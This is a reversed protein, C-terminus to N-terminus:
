SNFPKLSGLSKTLSEGYKMLRPIHLYICWEEVPSFHFPRYFATADAPIRNVDLHRIAQAPNRVENWIRKWDDTNTALSNSFAQGHTDKIKDLEAKALKQARSCPLGLVMRFDPTLLDQALDIEYGTGRRTLGQEVLWGFLQLLSDDLDSLSNLAAPILDNALQDPM